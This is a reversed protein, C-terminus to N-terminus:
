DRPSPAPAPATGLPDEYTAATSDPIPRPLLHPPPPPTLAGDLLRYLFPARTVEGNEISIVGTPLVRTCAFAQKVHPEILARQDIDQLAKMRNTGPVLEILVQGSGENAQSTIEKIGQLGSIAGEVPLVIGQEVESPSAGPYTVRVEVFDLQFQPFVEKQINSMTWLGGGILVIMLLTTIIHNRAMFAIAGKHTDETLNQNAM